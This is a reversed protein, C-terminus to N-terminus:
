DPVYVSLRDESGRRPIEDFEEVDTDDHDDDGDNQSNDERRSTTIAQHALFGLGAAMMLPRWPGMLLALGAGVSVAKKMGRSVQASIAWDNRIHTAFHECNNTLVNYPLRQIGRPNGVSRVAREVVDEQSFPEMQRDFSNNIRAEGRMWVDLVTEKCIAEGNSTGKSSSSSLAMSVSNPLLTGSGGRNLGGAENESETAMPNAMHVAMHEYVVLDDDTNDEDPM